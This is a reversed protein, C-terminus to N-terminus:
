RDNLIFSHEQYFDIGDIPMLSLRRTPKPLRQPYNDYYQKNKEYLQKISNKDFYKDFQPIYYQSEALEILVRGLTPLVNPNIEPSKTLLENWRLKEPWSMIIDYEEREKATMERKKDPWYLYYKGDLEIERGFWLVWGPKGYDKTNSGAM